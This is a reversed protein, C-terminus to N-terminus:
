MNSSNITKENLNKKLLTCGESINTSITFENKSKKIEQKLNNLSDIHNNLVIVEHELYEISELRKLNDKELSDIINSKEFLLENYNQELTDYRKQTIVCQGLIFVFIVIIIWNYLNKM